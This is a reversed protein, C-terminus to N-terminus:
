GSQRPYASPITALLATPQLTSFQHVLADMRSASALPRGKVFTVRRRQHRQIRFARGLNARAM